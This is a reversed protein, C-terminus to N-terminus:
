VWSTWSSGGEGKVEKGRLRHHVVRVPAQPRVEVQVQQHELRDDQAKRRLVRGDEAGVGDDLALDEAGGLGGDLPVTLGPDEEKSRTECDGGRQEERMKEASGGEM